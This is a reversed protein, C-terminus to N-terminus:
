MGGINATLQNYDMKIIENELMHEWKENVCVLKTEKETYIPEWYYWQNRPSLKNVDFKYWPNKKM